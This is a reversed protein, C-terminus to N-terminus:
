PLPMSLDNIFDLVQSSTDLVEDMLGLYVEEHEPHIESLLQYIQHISRTNKHTFDALKEIKQETTM